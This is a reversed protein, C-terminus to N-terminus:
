KNSNIKTLLRAIDKRLLSFQKVDVSAGASRKVKLMLLEKKKSIVDALLDQKDKSKDKTM